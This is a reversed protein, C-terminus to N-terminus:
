TAVEALLREVCGSFVDWGNFGGNIRKRVGRWDQAEALQYVHCVKFFAALVKAATAPRCAESPFTVLDVGVIHGYREYNERWTIQVFGRGIYPYYRQQSDALEPQRDHLALKETIPQFTGTETAVTAAAAIQVLDGGIGQAELAALILPWNAGVAEAPCRTARSVQDVTLPM